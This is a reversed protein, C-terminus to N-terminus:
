GSIVTVRPFDYHILRLAWNFGCVLELTNETLVKWTLNRFDNIMYILMAPSPDLSRWKYGNCAAVLFTLHVDRWLSIRGTEDLDQIVSGQGYWIANTVM